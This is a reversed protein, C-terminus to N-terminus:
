PQSKWKTNDTFIVEYAFTTELKKANRSLCEFTANDIQNPKLTSETFGYGWGDSLSGMDAPENFVTLAKWSFKIGAIPKNTANKFQIFVNKYIGTGSPVLKSKLIKIPSNKSERSKNVNDILSSKISDKLYERYTEEEKTYTKEKKQQTCSLLLISTLIILDVGRKHKKLLTDKNTM